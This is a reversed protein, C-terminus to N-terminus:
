TGIPPLLGIMLSQEIIDRRALAEATAISWRLPHDPYLKELMERVQRMLDLSKNFTLVLDGESLEILETIEAMTAGNCWARMAGYFGEHHGTSLALGNRREVEFVEQELSELRRRLLVLKTPLTFHNAFRTERDFAFWSFVEAVDAPELGKFFDRDLMECIILGNTDFVDALTDAKSTPYGRHLYGFHELVNRIGRLLERVRREEAAIERGLQAELEAREQELRAIRQLNRQHEKRRQCAHCPHRFRQQTLEHLTQQITQLREEIRRREPALRAEVQRRHELLMADLDPLPRAAFARWIEELAETSVIGRVDSVPQALLALAEPIPVPEIGHPVYDIQRYETLLEASGERTLVLAIGGYPLRNLFLVWGRERTHLPTGPAM